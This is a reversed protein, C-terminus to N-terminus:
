TGSLLKLSKHALFYGLASGALLFGDMSILNENGYEGRFMAGLLLGLCLSAGLKFVPSLEHFILLRGTNELRNREYTWRSIYFLFAILAVIMVIRIALNDYYLIYTISDDIKKVSEPLPIEKMSVSVFEYPNIRRAIRDLIVTFSNQDYKLQLHARLFGSIHALIFYPAAIIVPGMIGAALSNGVVCQILVLASFVGMYMLMNMLSWQPVIAYSDFIWERNSTYFVSIAAFTILYVTFIVSMGTLWKITLIRSRKFPMSSLLGFTSGSRESYFLSVSLAAVLFVMLLDYRGPGYNGALHNNFWHAVERAYYEPHKVKMYKISDLRGSLGMIKFVATNLIMLLGIWRSLRWEKYVLPNRFLKM